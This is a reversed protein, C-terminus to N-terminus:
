KVSKYKTVQVVEPKVEYFEASYWYIGDHSVWCADAEIYVDHDIFHYVDEFTDGQGEGGYHYVNDMKGLRAELAEVDYDENYLTEPTIELEELVAVIEKFDM